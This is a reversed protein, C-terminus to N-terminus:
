QATTIVDFEGLAAQGQESLLWNILPQVNAEDTSLYGIGVPSVMPYASDGPAVGDLAIPQVKAGSAFAAPWSGMGVSGPTGAVAAQMDSQSTLVTTTEPFPTDGLAHERLAQTSSDGEDRVYLVVPMNPGEVESWNTIEGLLLATAQETTLNTVGVDMHTYVAVGSLGFEVYKVGQSAEEDKPPRAMAAVDLLGEMLGKVGGGTGSGPLIDLKYTPVDAEFASQVGKLIDTATGSGSITLTTQPAATPMTDTEPSACASLSWTLAVILAGILLYYERQTPKM